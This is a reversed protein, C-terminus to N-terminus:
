LPAGCLWCVLAVIAVHIAFCAVVIGAWVLLLRWGRLEVDGPTM